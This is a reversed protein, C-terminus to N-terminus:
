NKVFMITMCNESQLFYSGPSLATIDVSGNFVDAELVKQGSYAWICIHKPANRSAIFLKDQAPNPYLWVANEEMGDVGDDKAAAVVVTPLGLIAFGGANLPLYHEVYHCAVGSLNPNAICDLYRVSVGSDAGAFYIKNDPALKLDTVGASLNVLAVIAKSAHIASASGSMLDYQCIKMYSFSTFSSEASYLKTNDPSFEVGYSFVATDILKCQTVSGTVRDFNHLEIGSGGLISMGYASVAIKTQDPSVKITGAEYCISDNVAGSSSIVPVTDIGSSTIHFAYFQKKEYRHTLLWIDNSIGRIAVMKESLSDSIIHGRTSAIVDGAGGDLNMDVVSYALRGAGGSFFDEYNDLSFVYYLHNSGIVPVILAGETSSTTTFPVIGIGNPMEVGFHNYVDSGNTYFLLTGHEDCVSACAERSFFSAGISMPPSYNFDVGATAGFIWVKNRNTNYQAISIATCLLIFISSLLVKKM